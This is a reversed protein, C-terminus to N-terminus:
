LHGGQISTFNVFRSTAETFRKRKEEGLFESKIQPWHDEVPDCFSDVQDRGDRTLWIFRSRPYLTLLQPVLYFDFLYKFVFKKHVALCLRDLPPDILELQKMLEPRPHEHSFNTNIKDVSWGTSGCQIFDWPEKYAPQFLTGFFYKILWSSGTRPLGYIWTPYSRRAFNRLKEEFEAENECEALKGLREEEAGELYEDPYLELLEKGNM